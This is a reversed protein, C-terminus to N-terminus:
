FFVCGKDGRIHVFVAQSAGTLVEPPDSHYWVPTTIHAAGEMAPVELCIQTIGFEVVM